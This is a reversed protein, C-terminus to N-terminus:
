KQVLFSSMARCDRAFGDVRESLRTSMAAAAQELPPESLAVVSLAVVSLAVVSLAVEGFEGAVRASVGPLADVGMPPVGSIGPAAWAPAAGPAMDPLM